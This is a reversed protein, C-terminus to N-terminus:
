VMVVQPVPQELPVVLVQPDQLEQDELPEQAELEEMVDQNELPEQLVRPVLDDLGVLLEM